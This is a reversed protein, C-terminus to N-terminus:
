LLSVVPFGWGIRRPIYTGVVDEFESYWGDQIIFLTYGLIWRKTGADWWIWYNASQHKYYLVGLHTGAIFYNGNPSPNGDGTVVFIPPQPPLVEPTSCSRSSHGGM